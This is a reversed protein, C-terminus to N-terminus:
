DPYSFTLGDAVTQRRRKPASVSGLAVWKAHRKDMIAVRTASLLDDREKVIQGDKTHYMRFEEFWQSLHAAVKFRGSTMRDMMETIGMWTSIGGDEWTAHDPLM